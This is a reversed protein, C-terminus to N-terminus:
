ACKNGFPALEWTLPGVAATAPLPSQLVCVMKQFRRAVAQLDRVKVTSFESAKSALKSEGSPQEDGRPSIIIPSFQFWLPQLWATILHGRKHHHSPTTATAIHQPKAPTSRGTAWRWAEPPQFLSIYPLRSESGCVHIRDSNLICSAKNKHGDIQVKAM